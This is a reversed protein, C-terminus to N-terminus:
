GVRKKEDALLLSTWYSPSLVASSMILKMCFFLTVSLSLSAATSGTSDTSGTSGSEM